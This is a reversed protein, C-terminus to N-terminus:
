VKQKRWGLLGWLLCLLALTTILASIFGIAWLGGWAWVVGGLLAAIVRGVSVAAIMASMMTARAQPLLETFLSIATVVSFEFALFIVFLGALALPLSHGGIPLALYSLTTLGLGGLVAPKLGVRDAVAATLGEGIFEALGIVTTAFGLAVVGLSFDRELWVGYVIFLNDNAMSAFFSFGL